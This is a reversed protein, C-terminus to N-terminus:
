LPHHRQSSEDKHAHCFSSLVIKSMFLSFSVWILCVRITVHPTAHSVLTVDHGVWLILKCQRGIRERSFKRLHMPITCWLSSVPLFLQSLDVSLYMHDKSKCSMMLTCPAKRPSSLGGLNTVPYTLLSLHQPLISRPQTCCMSM